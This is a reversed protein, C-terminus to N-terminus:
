KKHFLLCNKNCGGCKHRFRRTVTLVIIILAAAAAAIDYINM